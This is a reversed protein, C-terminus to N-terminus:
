DNERETYSLSTRQPFDLDSSLFLTLIWKESLQEPIM